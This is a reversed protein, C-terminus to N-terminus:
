PRNWMGGPQMYAVDGLSIDVARVVTSGSQAVNSSAVEAIYTTWGLDPVVMRNTSYYFASESDGVTITTGSVSAKVISHCTCNPTTATRQTIWAFETNSLRAFQAHKQFNATNFILTRSGITLTTGSVTMAWAYLNYSGSVVWAILTSGTLAFIGSTTPFTPSPLTAQTGWTPGTADLVRVYHSPSDYYLAVAKNSTLNAFKMNEGTFASSTFVAQWDGIDHDSGDNCTTTDWTITNGSAGVNGKLHYLYQSGATCSGDFLQHPSLVYINSSAARDGWIGGAEQSSSFSTLVGREFSNYIDNESYSAINNGSLTVVNVIPFYNTSYDKFYWVAIRNSDVVTVQIPSENSNSAATGISSRTGITAQWGDNPEKEMEFIQVYVTNVAIYVFAFKLATPMEVIRMTNDDLDGLDFAGSGTGASLITEIMLPDLCDECAM